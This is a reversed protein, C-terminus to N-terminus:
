HCRPDWGASDGHEFMEVRVEGQAVPKVSMSVSATELPRGYHGEVEGATSATRLLVWARRDCHNGNGRLLGFDTGMAIVWSGPPPALEYLDGKWESLRVNNVVM